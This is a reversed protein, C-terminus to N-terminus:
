CSVASEQRARTAVAAACSGGGGFMVQLRQPKFGSKKIKPDVVAVAFGCGVFLLVVHKVGTINGKHDVVRSFIKPYAQYM